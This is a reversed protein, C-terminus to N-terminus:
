QIPLPKKLSLSLELAASLGSSLMFSLHLLAELIQDAWKQGETNTVGLGSKPKLWLGNNWKLGSPTTWGHVGPSAQVLILECVGNGVKGDEAPMVDPASSPLSVFDWSYLCPNKFTFTQSYHFGKFVIPMRDTGCCMLIGFFSSSNAFM